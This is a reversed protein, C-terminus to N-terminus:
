KWHQSIWGKLYNENMSICIYKNRNFFWELHIRMRCVRRVTMRRYRGYALSPHAWFTASAKLINGPSHINKNQLISNSLIKRFDSWVKLCGQFRKSCLLIRSWQPYTFVTAYRFDCFIAGGLARIESPTKVWSSTKCRFQGVEKCLVISM